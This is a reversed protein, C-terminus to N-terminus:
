MRLGGDVELCRGTFFENEVIFQVAASIEAPEGLRGIPVPALARQLAEPKMYATMDTRVFGPAIAGVRIGFRALEKTWVVTLAAVGAKAAGYNSQGVNGARSISSLNIIVGRSKTEVMVTAAERGCLFVGTLNVSLVSQWDALSMRNVIQGSDVKLLLKDRVIGANNVLVDLLGWTSVVVSFVDQVASEDTVDVPFCRAQDAQPACLKHTERLGREDRDLLALRAGRRAFHLAIARGIGRGAGTVVVSKGRTHPGEAISGNSKVAAHTKDSDSV